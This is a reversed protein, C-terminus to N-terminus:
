VCYGRYNDGTMLCLGSIIYGRWLFIHKLVVVPGTWDYIRDRQLRRTDGKIAKRTHSKYLFTYSYKIELAINTVHGFSRQISSWISKEVGDVLNMVTVDYHTRHCRLDCAERNNVWDNMWTCILTFKLAGRWQGKHPFNVLSRQIGRVFPWHRPFHEM